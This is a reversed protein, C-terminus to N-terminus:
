RNGRLRRIHPNVRRLGGKILRRDYVEVQRKAEQLQIESVRGGDGGPNETNSFSLSALLTIYNRATQPLDEFARAFVANVIVAEEFIFTNNYTNYLKGDTEVVRDAVSTYVPHFSLLNAPLVIEGDTNVALTYNEDSCFNWGMDQVTVSTEGLVATAKQASPKATEGLISVPDEGINRLMINVADLKTMRRPNDLSVTM